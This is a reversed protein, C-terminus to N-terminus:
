AAEAPVNGPLSRPYKGQRPTYEVELGVLFKPETMGADFASLRILLSIYDENTIKGANLIGTPSAMLLDQSIVEDEAIPTDLATAPAAVSSSNLTMLSYLMLWTIGDGATNSESMWIVRFRIDQQRNWKDPIRMMHRIDDGTTPNATYMLLGM